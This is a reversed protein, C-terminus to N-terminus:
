DVSLSILVYGFSSTVRFYCYGSPRSEKPKERVGVQIAQCCILYKGVSECKSFELLSRLSVILQAGIAMGAVLSHAISHTPIHPKENRKEEQFDCYERYLIESEDAISAMGHSRLSQFLSQM